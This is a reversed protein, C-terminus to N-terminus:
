FVCLSFKTLTSDLAVQHQVGSDLSPALLSTLQLGAQAAFHFVTEFFRIKLVLYTHPTRSGLAAALLSSLSIHM